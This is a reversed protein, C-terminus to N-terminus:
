RFSAAPTIAAFREDFTEHAAQLQATPKLPWFNRAQKEMYIANVNKRQIPKTRRYDRTEVFPSHYKENLNRRNKGPAAQFFAHQFADDM